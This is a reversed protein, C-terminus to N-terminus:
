SEIEEFVERRGFVNTIRLNGVINHVAWRLVFDEGKWIVTTDQM